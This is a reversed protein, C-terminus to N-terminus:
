DQLCRVSRLSSKVSTSRSFDESDYSIYRSYVDFDIPSTDGQERLVFRVSEESASWWYGNNGANDFSNGKFGYRGSPLASFGYNDTGNGDNNWNSKSKLKKGSIREGGIYGTLKTWEEDSPLHWGNPCVEKATEWNYIRGYKSCNEPKDDYCKSGEADYNLNEAM